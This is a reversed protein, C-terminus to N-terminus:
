RKIAFYLTGCSEPYQSNGDWMESSYSPNVNKFPTSTSYTQNFQKCPGDHNKGAWTGNSLQYIVHFKYTSWGVTGNIYEYIEHNPYRVAIRYEDFQITEAYNELPRCSKVHKKIEKEIWSAHAATNLVANSGSPMLLNQNKFVAYGFCNPPFIEGLNRFGGGDGFIIPTFTWKQNTGGGYEYAIVNKQYGSSNSNGDIDIANKVNGGYKNMLRYSGDKNKIIRFLLYDATTDTYANAKGGWVELAKIGNNPFPWMSYLKYWGNGQSVVRWQQNGSSSGSGTSWVLAPITANGGNASPNSVDLSKSPLWKSKIHYTGSPLSTDETYTVTVFLDTAASTAFQKNAKGTTEAKLFVGYDQSFGTEGLAYQLWYKFLETINWAYTANAGCLVSDYKYGLLYYTGFYAANAPSVNTPSDHCDVRYSSSTGYTQRMNLKATVNNPNIYKYNNINNIKVYSMTEYNGSHKGVSLHSTSPGWNTGNSCVVTRLINSPTIQAATPDVLVPYITTDSELFEKNVIIAVLYIGDKLAEIRYSNEYTLHADEDESAYSDMAWIDDLLFAEAGTKENKFVIKNGETKDPILGKATIAFQFENIGTYKEIFINEKIGLNIPAYQLHIGEGFANAYEVVTQTEGYFTFDKKVAETKEQTLPTMTVATGAFDLTISDRIDKPLKVGVPGDTKEYATKSFLGSFFGPETLNNEIFKIKGSEEDIYKVPCEYSYVTKSGDENITTFSSLEEADSTDLSIAKKSDTQLIDNEIVSPIKDIKYESLAKEREKEIQLQETRANSEAFSESSTSDFVDAASASITFITLILVFSIIRSLVKSKKM